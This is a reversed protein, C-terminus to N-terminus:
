LKVRYYVGLQFSDCNYYGETFSTLMDFRLGTSSKESLFIDYLLSGSIGFLNEKSYYSHFSPQYEPNISSEGYSKVVQHFLPGAEIKLNNLAVPFPTYRVSLNVGFSTLLKYLVEDGWLEENDNAFGGFLRPTVSFYDNVQYLYEGYFSTGIMDGSGYFAGNLGVQLSGKKNSTEQANVNMGMITFIFLIILNKM